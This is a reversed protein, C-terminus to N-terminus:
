ENSDSIEESPEEPTEEGPVDESDSEAVPTAKKPRIVLFYVAVGGGILAIAVLIVILIWSNPNSEGNGKPLTPAPVSNTAM